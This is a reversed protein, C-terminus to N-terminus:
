IIAGECILIKVQAINGSKVASVLAHNLELVVTIRRRYNTIALMLATENRNNSASLDAGQSLLQKVLEIQDRLVAMMLPTNGDVDRINVDANNDLLWKVMKKNGHRVAWHLASFGEESYDIDINNSDSFLRKLESFNDERATRVFANNPM